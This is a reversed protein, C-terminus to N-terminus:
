RRVPAPRHGTGQKAFAFTQRLQCPVSQLDSDASSNLFRCYSQNDNVFFRNFCIAGHLAKAAKKRKLKIQPGQRDPLM